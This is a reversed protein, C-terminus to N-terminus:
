KYDKKVNEFQMKIKGDQIILSATFNKGTKSKFGNINNTKGKELLDKINKDSLKKKCIIKMISFGCNKWDECYFNKNSELINKGCIPCKGKINNRFTEIKINKNIGSDIERKANNIIDNISEKGNYIAKLEKGIEVTKEKYLNIKLKDLVEILKIGKETIDLSNKNNRIYGDKKVKEIIGARTAPTGIECGQMIAIYDEDTTEELIDKKEKKFPNEYFNNLEAETVKGPPTTKKEIVKFEINIQEGKTFNPIENETMDNEYELYGKQKITTGKVKAEGIETNIILNQEKIVCDDKCFNALFRNKITNYTKEENAELGSIRNGTIIIASHSEVKSSNFIKKDDKMEVNLNEEKKLKEIIKQVKNKEEETLFESNTRPYTTYTKEYLEQAYKLTNNISIKYKSFMYNQLTKLSFLKKPKKIKEKEEISIITAKKNKIEDIKKQIEKKINEENDDNIKIKDGFELKLEKNDKKIIGQIQFYKEEKFNRIEMERDYVFKVTPVIVRGVPFKDNTKLSVYRSFNIGYLWDIYTRALGEQYWNETNKIDRLNNLEKKITTASLDQLLIRKVNKEIKNKRFIDYIINNVLVEGERDADGCNIITDVDNRKILNEVLNYREKIGKQKKLKWKFHKPYFPLDEINWKAYDKNYDDMRYLELLHGFLSTIVYNDNEFFDKNNTGKKLNKALERAVSPKEAIILKKM